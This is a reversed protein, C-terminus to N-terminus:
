EPHVAEGLNSEVVNTSLAQAALRISAPWFTVAAKLNFDSSQAALRPATAGLLLVALASALGARALSLCSFPKSASTKM